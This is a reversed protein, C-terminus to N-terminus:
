FEDTKPQLKHALTLFQDCDPALSVYNNKGFGTRQVIDYAVLIEIETRCDAYLIECRNQIEVIGCLGNHELFDIIKLMNHSFFPMRANEINGSTDVKNKANKFGKQIVFVVYGGRVLIKVANEVDLTSIEGRKAFKKVIAQLLFYQEPHTEFFEKIDRILPNNKTFTMLKEHFIEPIIFTQEFAM